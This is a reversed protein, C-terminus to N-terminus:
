REFVKNFYDLKRKEQAVQARQKAERAQRELKQDHAISRKILNQNLEEAWALYNKHKPLFEDMYESAEKHNLHKTNVYRVLHEKLNIVQLPDFNVVDSVMSFSGQFGETVKYSGMAFVGDLVDVKLAGESGFFLYKGKQLTIQKKKFYVSSKSEVEFLVPGYVWELQDNEKKLLTEKGMFVHLNETNYSSVKKVTGFHCVPLSSSLCSKPFEVYGMAIQSCIFIFIAVAFKM